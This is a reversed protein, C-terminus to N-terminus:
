RSDRKAQGLRWGAFVLLALEAAILVVLAAANDHFVAILGGLAAVLGGAVAAQRRNSDVDNV